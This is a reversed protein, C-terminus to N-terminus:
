ISVSVFDFINSGSSDKSNKDQGGEWNQRALVNSVVQDASQRLVKWECM